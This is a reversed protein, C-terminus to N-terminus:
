PRRSLTVLLRPAQRFPWSGWKPALAPGAHHIPNKKKRSPWRIACQGFLKHGLSRDQTEKTIAIHAM